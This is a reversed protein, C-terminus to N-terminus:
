TTTNLLRAQEKAFARAQYPYSFEQFESVNDVRGNDRMIRVSYLRPSKYDFKESTIFILGKETHHFGPLLHSNFFRMTDADFYHSEEQRAFQKLQENSYIESLKYM